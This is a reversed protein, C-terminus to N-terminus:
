KNEDKCVYMAIKVVFIHSFHGDLILHRSEFECGKSCYDGGMVVLGPSRSTLIQIMPNSLEAFQALAKHDEKEYLQKIACPM